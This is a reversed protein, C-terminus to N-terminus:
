LRRDERLSHWRHIGKTFCRQRAVRCYPIKLLVVGIAAVLLVFSAALADAGAGATAGEPVTAM